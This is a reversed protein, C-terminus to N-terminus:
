SLKIKHGRYFLYVTGLLQLTSNACVVGSGDPCAFIPQKNRRSYRLMAEVTKKSNSFHPLFEFDVLGLSKLNKLRVENEDGEHPPYGALQIDQTMIIAGASLGAVIGGRRAFKDLERLFGSERLHKLFYYTNGGALYIVDSKLAEKMEKVLFDSDAAFYRFKKFGFRRYRKKIRNYFHRGNEHSFPVYTFSRAKKGMLRSLAQHIRINGLDQGGSYFVLRLKSRLRLGKDQM